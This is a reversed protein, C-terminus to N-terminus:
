TSDANPLRAILIADDLIGRARADVRLADAEQLCEQEIHTQGLLRRATAENEFLRPLYHFNDGWAKNARRYERVARNLDDARDQGRKHMGVTTLTDAIAAYVSALGSRDEVDSYHGEAESLRELATEYRGLRYEMLGANRACHGRSRHGNATDGLIRAAEAFCNRAGVYDSNLEYNHARYMIMTGMAQSHRSYSASGPAPGSSMYRQVLVESAGAVRLANVHASLAQLEWNSGRLLRVSRESLSSGKHVAGLGILSRSRTLQLRASLETPVRWAVAGIFALFDDAVLTAGGLRIAEAEAIAVTLLAEDDKPQRSRLLGRLKSLLLSPRNQSEAWYREVYDSLEAVEIAQRCKEIENLRYRLLAPSGVSNDWYAHHTPCAVFLNNSSNNRTRSWPVVHAKEGRGPLFFERSTETLCFPCHYGLRLLVARVIASPIKRTARTGALPM